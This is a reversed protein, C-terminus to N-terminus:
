KEKNEQRGDDAKKDFNVREGESVKIPSFQKVWNSLASWNVGYEREM